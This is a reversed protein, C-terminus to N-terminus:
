LGRGLNARDAAKRQLERLVRLAEAQTRFGTRKAQRRKGTVPDKGLDVRLWWTGDAAKKIRQDATRGM